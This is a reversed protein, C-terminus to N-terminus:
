CLLLFPRLQLALALQKAGLLGYRKTKGHRSKERRNERFQGRRCISGAVLEVGPHNLKLEPM